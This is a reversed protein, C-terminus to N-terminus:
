RQACRPGCMAFNSRYSLGHDALQNLLKQVHDPNLKSLQIQGIAPIVHHTIDQTYKAYTRVRAQRKVTEELWHELFQKVTQQHSTLNVGSTQDHHLAKLKDGVEKRTKGYVVKRKRKGNVWGLDVTAVWKGDSERQYIAGEGNGRRKSM